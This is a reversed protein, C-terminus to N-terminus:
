HFTRNIIYMCVDRVGQKDLICKFCIIKFVIFYEKWLVSYSVEGKM